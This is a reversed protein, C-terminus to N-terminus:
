SDTTNSTWYQYSIEVTFEEVTDNTEWNLDIASVNTPWGGVIKYSKIVDGKRDLHQIEFDVQYLEPNQEGVNAGHANINNMWSEFANRITMDTDNIVTLSMPEFTRDGAVKVQRGMYPVITEAIVDAPLSAGKIMFQALDGGGDVGAPWSMLVRFQNPRAGGGTFRSKFKNINESM